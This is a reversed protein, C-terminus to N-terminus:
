IHGFIRFLFKFIKLIFLAKLTFYFSNKMMKWPSATELFQRVSSLAGKLLTWYEDANLNLDLVRQM